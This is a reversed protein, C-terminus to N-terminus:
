IFMNQLLSSKLEKLINSKHEQLSIATNIMKFFASLSNQENVDMPLVMKIRKLETKNFKTQGNPSIILK